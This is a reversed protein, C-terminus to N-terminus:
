LGFRVIGGGSVPPFEGSPLEVVWDFVRCWWVGGASLICGCPMSAAGKGTELKELFEGWRSYTCGGEACKPVSPACVSSVLFPVGFGVEAHQSAPAGGLVGDFVVEVAPDGLVCESPLEVEWWLEKGIEVATKKTVGVHSGLVM